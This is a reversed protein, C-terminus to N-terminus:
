RGPLQNRAPQQCESDNNAHSRGQKDNGGGACPSQRHTTDAARLRLEPAAHQDTEGRQQHHHRHAREEPAVLPKILVARYESADSVRIRMHRQSPEQDDCKCQQHTGDQCQHARKGRRTRSPEKHCDSRGRGAIEHEGHHRPVDAGKDDFRILQHTLPGIDCVVDLLRAASVREIADHRM